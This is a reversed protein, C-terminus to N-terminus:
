YFMKTKFLERKKLWLLTNCPFFFIQLYPMPFILCYQTKNWKLWHEQPYQERGMKVRCEAGRPQVRSNCGRPWLMGQNDNFKALPLEDPPLHPSFNSYKNATKSGPHAMVQWLSREKVRLQRQEEVSCDKILHALEEPKKLGRPPLMNASLILLICSIEQPQQGQVAARQYNGNIM